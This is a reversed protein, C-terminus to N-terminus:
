LALSPFSPGRLSVQPLSNTRSRWHSRCRSLVFPFLGTHCQLGLALLVLKIRTMCQPIRGRFDFVTPFFDAHTHIFDIECTAALCAFFKVIPQLGFAFERTRRRCFCDSRPDVLASHFTAVEDFINSNGCKHNTPCRM